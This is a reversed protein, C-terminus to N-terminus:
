EGQGPELSAIMADIEDDTAVDLAVSTLPLGDNGGLKLVVQNNEMTLALSNIINGMMNKMDTTKTYEALADEIAQDRAEAEDDIADGIAGELDTKMTAMKAFIGTAVNEGNAEQGVVAALNNVSGQVIADQQDAYDKADQLAQEVDDVEAKAAFATAETETILRSGEVKDVKNLLKNDFAQEIADLVGANDKLAAALEDLTDLTEPAGNVLDAVKQDAYAKADAEVKAISGATEANGQIINLAGEAATMRTVLGDTVNSKVGDIADKIQQKVSGAVGEEGNLVDIADANAKEAARATAAETAVLGAIRKEEADARGAETEVLGEIRQEEAVRLASETAIQEKVSGVVSAEGNLVALAGENAAIRAVLGGEANLREEIADVDAQAADAADQAADISNQLQTLANGEGEGGSILGELVGLRRDQEQDIAPQAAIKAENNAIRTAFGGEVGEARLKEVNVADAVAKAVSGEVKDDGNLIAIAATNADAKGEIRQEAGQARNAENAADAAAQNAATKLATAVKDLAGLSVLKNKKDESIAM